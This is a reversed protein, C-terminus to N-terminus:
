VEAREPILEVNINIADNISTDMSKMNKKLM